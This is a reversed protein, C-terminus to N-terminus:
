CCIKNRTERAQLSIILLLSSDYFQQGLNFASTLRIATLIQQKVKGSWDGVTVNGVRCGVMHEVSWGVSRGVRRPGARDAPPASRSRNVIGMKCGQGPGYLTIFCYFIGSRAFVFMIVAAKIVEAVPM